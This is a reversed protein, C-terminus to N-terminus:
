HQVQVVPQGDSALPTWVGSVQLDALAAQLFSPDFWTEIEERTLPNRIVKLQLSYDLSRRYHEVLYEDILPNYIRALPIGEYERATIEYSGQAQSWFRLVEERHAEDAIYRAGRLFAKLVRKVATPYQRAFDDTVFIEASSKWHADQDRTSWIIKGTGNSEMLFADGGFQADVTKAAIANQGDVPSLNFIRFDSHKLGEAAFYMAVPIETPRGRHLAVRKGKLDQITRDTSGAPVVLYVNGLRNGSAVIRTKLGGSKGILSPFDGYHAFDIHHNAFAENVGPGFGKVAYWEIKVPDGKFEDEILHNAGVWGLIGTGYPRGTTAGAGSGLRIVPPLEEAVVATLSLVSMVLATLLLRPLNM